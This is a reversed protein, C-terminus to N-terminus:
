SLRHFAFATASVLEDTPWFGAAHLQRLVCEFDEYGITRTGADAAIQDLKDALAEIQNRRTETEEPTLMRAGTRVFTGAHARTYAAVARMADAPSTVLSYSTSRGGSPDRVMVRRAVLDDIDRLATDQSCKAIKAWKSTTLKGELGDMLRNIMLRQRPNFQEGSHAEWFKSKRLVNGLMHEAGDFARDLCGLFWELWPTVDLGNKQTAELIDYYANREDRIRASMSYFRQATRESRALLLDAIARAIRGNGDEFPHITVFWLHAVGAKLVLDAPEAGNFWDLFAAIESEIRGAAPAEFHVRESDLPGSVVQMPGSRDDRWAGVIIKTMGSRGTPFLSAHWAFLRDVTLPEAFKQTADLMMEVVGEVNRDAPALAGVDLGLRRAISSRVQSRDLIEGEIESSKTVEQTLNELAAEARLQFGLSEMRGLLRGQRHRVAALSDTLRESRWSLKPWEDHEYICTAYDGCLM